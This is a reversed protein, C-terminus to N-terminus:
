VPTVSSRQISGRIAMNNNLIVAVYIGSAEATFIGAYNLAGLQSQPEYPMDSPLTIEEHFTCKWSGSAVAVFKCPRFGAIFSDNSRFYYAPGSFTLNTGNVGTFSFVFSTTQTTEKVNADLTCSGTLNGTKELTAFVQYRFTVGEGSLLHRGANASCALSLLVAIVLAPRLSTHAM